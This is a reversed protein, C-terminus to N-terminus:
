PFEERDDPCEFMLAYESPTYEIYEACAPYKEIHKRTWNAVKIGRRLPLSKRGCTGCIYRYRTKRMWWYRIKRTRLAARLTRVVYPM